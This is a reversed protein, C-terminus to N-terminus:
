TVWEVVREVVWAPDDIPIDHGAEPHEKTEFAWKKAIARSCSPNVMRDQASLLVLGRAAPKADSPQFRAAALLQRIVSERAVPRAEAIAKFKQALEEDDRRFNSIFGLVIKERKLRDREVISRLVQGMAWPRLREHMRSLSGVSSNMLVLESIEDPYRQAWDLAIMGGLSIAFLSAPGEVPCERRLWDTMEPITLPCDVERAKGAGPLDPTVM